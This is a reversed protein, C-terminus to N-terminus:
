RFKTNLKALFDGYNQTGVNNVNVYTGNVNSLSTASTAYIKKDFSSELRDYSYRTSLTLWDNVQYDLSLRGKFFRSEDVSPNKNILWYPNQSTENPTNIWNQAMLNRAPDFVQYNNKWYDLSQGGRPMMYVSTLPNFYLGNVPRNNIKQSIYNANAGVTLKNDLFSNIQNIGFNNKNLDNGEIIGSAATNAYTLTTASNETGSTYGLSTIQTVGTRFFGDVDVNTDGQTYTGDANKGWTVETGPATSAVYQDQFEPLYAANDFSTTSNFHFNSKSEKGKKSTLMIVGNAGLSGYLASASAGKLITMGDYDDPNLLSIVDGGDTNGGALSGFTENPQSAGSTMLPVGDIVYLPQNNTLSTNGRIVVKSSGGSGASSRTIAVGAIKGAVANMLNVDKVRVLEAEKIEQVTSTVSKKTKKIGLSTVVVENLANSSSPALQVNITTSSGVVITQTEFGIFSFSLTSGEKAAISYRGDFDTISGTSQGVVVVNVTPIPAGTDDTVVGSITKEQALTVQSTLIIMLILYIQKM